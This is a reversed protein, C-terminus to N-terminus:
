RLARVIAAFVADKKRVGEPLEVYPVLAPHTKAEESKKPGLVWGQALKHRMWNDHSASPGAEPNTLHFNVGNICSDRQDEPADDWSPQVPVDKVIKTVARNAEHCVRAIEEPTM